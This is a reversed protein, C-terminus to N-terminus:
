KNQLIAFYNDYYKKSFYKVGELKIIDFGAQKLDNQFEKKSYLHYFRPINLGHQRWYINIDGLENKNVRALDLYIRGSSESTEAPFNDQFEEGVEYCCRRICPGFAIKVHKPTTKWEKKMEELM